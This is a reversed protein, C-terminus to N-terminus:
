CPHLTNVERDWFSEATVATNKFLSKQTHCSFRGDKSLFLELHPIFCMEKKNVVKISKKLHSGL